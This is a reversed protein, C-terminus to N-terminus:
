IHMKSGYYEYLERGADARVDFTRHDTGYLDAAFSEAVHVSKQARVAAIVSAVVGEPPASAAPQPITVPTHSRSTVLPGSSACATLALLLPMGGALAVCAGKHRVVGFM